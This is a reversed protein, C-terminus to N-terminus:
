RHAHGSAAATAPVAAAPAALGAHDHQVAPDLGRAILVIGAIVLAMPVAVRRLGPGGRTTTLASVM